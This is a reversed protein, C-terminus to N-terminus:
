SVYIYMDADNHLERHLLTCAMVNCRNIAIIATTIECTWLHSNTYHIYYASLVVGWYWVEKWSKWMYNISLSLVLFITFSLFFAMTCHIFELQFLRKTFQICNGNNHSLKLAMSRTPKLAPLSATRCATLCFVPLNM